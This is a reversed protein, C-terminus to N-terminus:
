QTGAYVGSGFIVQEGESRVGYVDYFVDDIAAELYSRERKDPLIRAFMPDLSLMTSLVKPVYARTEAPLADFGGERYRILGAYGSNYLILGCKLGGCSRMYYELLLTGYTINEQPNFINVPGSINHQNQVEQIAISTMQTLGLAGMPSQAIPNGGSETLVLAMILSKSLM